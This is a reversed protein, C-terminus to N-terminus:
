FHQSTRRSWCFIGSSYLFIQRYSFNSDSASPNLYYRVGLKLNNNSQAIITFYCDYGNWSYYIHPKINVGDKYLDWYTAYTDDNWQDKYKESSKLEYTSGDSWIVTQGNCLNKYGNTTDFTYYYNHSGISIDYESMTRVNNGPNYFSNVYARVNSWLVDDVIKIDSTATYFQMFKDLVTRGGVTNNQLIFWNTATSTAQYDNEFTLGAMVLLAAACVLGFGILPIVVPIIAYAEQTQILFTLGMTTICLMICVLIKAWKNKYIALTAEM